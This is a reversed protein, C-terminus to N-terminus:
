GNNKTWEKHLDDFLVCMAQWDELKLDAGEATITHKFGDDLEIYLKM